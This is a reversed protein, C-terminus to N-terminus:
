SCKDKSRANEIREGHCIPVARRELLHELMPRQRAHGALHRSLEVRLEVVGQEAAAWDEIHGLKPEGDDNVQQELQLGQHSDRVLQYNSLALEVLVQEDNLTARNLDPQIPFVLVSAPQDFRKAVVFEETLSCDHRSPLLTHILFGCRRCAYAVRKAVHQCEIQVRKSVDEPLKADCPLSRKLGHLICLEESCACNM